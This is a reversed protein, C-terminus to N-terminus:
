CNCAETLAKFATILADADKKEVASLFDDAASKQAEAEVESDADEEMEGDDSKSEEGKLKKGLLVTLM